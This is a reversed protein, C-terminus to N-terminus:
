ERLVFCKSHLLVYMEEFGVPIMKSNTRHIKRYMLQSLLLAGTKVENGFGSGEISLTTGGATTGMSPALSTINPTLLTSYKYGQQIDAMRLSDASHEGVQCSVNCLGDQPEMSYLIGHLELEALRCNSNAPGVYRVFRYLPADEDIDLTSYGQPPEESM